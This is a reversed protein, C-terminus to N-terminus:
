SFCDRTAGGKMPSIFGPLPMTEYGAYSEQEQGFLPLGTRAPVCPFEMRSCAKKGYPFLMVLLLYKVSPWGTLASFFRSLATLGNM